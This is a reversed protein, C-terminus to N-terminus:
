REFYGRGRRYGRRSRRETLLLVAVTVVMFSGRRRLHALITGVAVPVILLRSHRSFHEPLM